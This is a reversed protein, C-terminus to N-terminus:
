VRERREKSIRSDHPHDPLRPSRLWHAVFVDSLEVLISGLNLERCTCHKIQSIALWKYLFDLDTHANEM